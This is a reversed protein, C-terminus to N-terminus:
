GLPVERHVVTGGDPGPAITLDGGVAAIRDRMGLLGSGAPATAPDIGPGKDTVTFLLRDDGHDLTVTVAAGPAHKAANQLAELCCFYVALEVEPGFRTAEVEPSSVVEAHGPFSRTRARVAAVLGRATLVPPYIGRALERVTDICADLQAHAESLSEAAAASEGSRLRSETESLRVALGVLQQQAGDHIDRELRRREDAAARAVRGQSDRLESLQDELQGALVVGRLAPGAQAALDALLRQDGASLARDTPPVVAIDGVVEGLHVVERVVLGVGSREGSWAERVTGDRLRARARAAPVGLGDVLTRATLPLVEGVDVGSALQHPLAALAEYPDARDGYVLRRARQALWERSPGFLLAVAVTALVSPLLSGEPRGLGAFGVLGIVVLVYVGTVLVALGAYTIALVAARDLDWLRYRLSGVAISLPLGVVAGVAFVAVGLPRLVPVVQLALGVALVVLAVVLPKYQQRAIGEASLFRRTLSV